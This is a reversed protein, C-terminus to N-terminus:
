HVEAGPDARRLTSEIELEEVTMGLDKAMASKLDSLARRLAGEEQIMAGIAAGPRLDAEVVEAGDVEAYTGSSLGGLPNRVDNKDKTFQMKGGKSCGVMTHGDRDLGFAKAECRDPKFGAFLKRTSKGGRVAM